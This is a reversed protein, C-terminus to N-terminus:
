GLVTGRFYGMRHGLFFGLIGGGWGNNGFLGGNNGNLALLTALDNNGSNEPLSFIKTDAM